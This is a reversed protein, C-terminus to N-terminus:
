PQHFVCAFPELVIGPRYGGDDRKKCCQRGERDENTQLGIECRRADIKDVATEQDERILSGSRGM